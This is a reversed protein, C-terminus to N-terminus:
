IKKLQKKATQGAVMISIAMIVMISICWGIKRASDIDTNQVLLIVSIPIYYCVQETKDLISYICELSLVQLFLVLWVSYISKCYFSLVNTIVLAMIMYLTYLMLDILLSYVDGSRYGKMYYILCVGIEFMAVSFFMGMVLEKTYKWVIKKSDQTRTFIISINKRINEDFYNGWVLLFGLQPLLFKVISSFFIGRNQFGVFGLTFRVVSNLEEKDRELFSEFFVLIVIVLIMSKWKNISFLKKNGIGEYKKEQM